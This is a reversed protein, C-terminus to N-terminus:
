VDFKLPVGFFVFCPAIGILIKQIGDGAYREIEQLWKPVAEFSRRDTLDFVM